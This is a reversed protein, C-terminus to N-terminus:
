NVIDPTFFVKINLSEVKFGRERSGVVARGLLNDMLYSLSM